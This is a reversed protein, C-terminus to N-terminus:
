KAAEPFNPFELMMGILSARGRLQQTEREDVTLGSLRRYTENLETTLWVEVAAWQSGRYDVNPRNSM